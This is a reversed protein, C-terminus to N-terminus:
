SFRTVDILINVPLVHIFGPGVNKSISIPIGLISLRGKKDKNFFAPISKHKDSYSKLLAITLSNCRISLLSEEALAISNLIVVPLSSALM